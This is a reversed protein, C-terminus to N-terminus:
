VGKICKGKKGRVAEFASTASHGLHPDKVGASLLEALKMEFLQQANTNPLNLLHEISFFAGSGGPLVPTAGGGVVQGVTALAQSASMVDLIM